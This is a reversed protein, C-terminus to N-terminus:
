ISLNFTGPQADKHFSNVQESQSGPAATTDAAAATRRRRYHLKPFKFSFRRKKKRAGTPSAAAALGNQCLCRDYHQSM